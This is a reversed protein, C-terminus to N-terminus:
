GVVRVVKEAQAVLYAARKGQAFDDAKVLFFLVNSMSVVFLFLLHKLYFVLWLFKSFEFLDNWQDSHHTYLAFVVASFNLTEGDYAVLPRVLDQM